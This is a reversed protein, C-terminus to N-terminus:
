AQTEKDTGLNPTSGIGLEEMLGLLGTGEKQSDASPRTFDTYSVWYSKPVQSDIGM